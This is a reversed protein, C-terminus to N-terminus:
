PTAHLRARLQNLQGLTVVGVRRTFHQVAEQALRLLGVQDLPHFAEVRQDAHSHTHEPGALDRVEGDLNRHLPGIEGDRRLDDFSRPRSRNTVPYTTAGM